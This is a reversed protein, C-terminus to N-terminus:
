LMLMQYRGGIEEGASRGGERWGGELRSRFWVFLTRTRLGIDWGWGSRSMGRAAGGFLPM